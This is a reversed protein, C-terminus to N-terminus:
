EWRRGVYSCWRGCPSCIGTWWPADPDFDLTQMDKKGLAFLDGSADGGRWYAEWAADLAWDAPEDAIANWGRWGWGMELRNMAVAAIAPGAEPVTGGCEGTIIRAITWVVSLAILAAATM